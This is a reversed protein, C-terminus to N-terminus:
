APANEALPVEITMSTGEGPTSRIDYAGGLMQVREAIGRLGIGIRGEPVAEAGSFGTGDDQIRLRLKHDDSRLSVVAATARSHRAVNSLWEQVIRFLHIEAEKPLARDVPGLEASFLIPSSASMRRILADLSGILGLHDLEVPRLNYAIRRVEDVATAATASIEALQERATGPAEDDMGLLARNRIILLSQGLSDHLEGAVRKREEEQQTLLRHSYEAQAAQEREFVRVRIRYVIWLSALAASAALTMFWWTRWFPPLVRVTASAPRENWRGDANSASVLFRYRGPPLRTYAAVREGVIENWRDDFGELKYRYRIRAPSATTPAAFRFEIRRSDPAVRMERPPTKAEGDVVIRTLHVPPPPASAGLLRTDISVVGQQTPFWLLGDATRAAAPQVGGNCEASLLGDDRTLALSSVAAIRGDAVANLESVSARHVGRNSSMWFFGSDEIIAFVGNDFLGERTTIAAVRGDRLRNLGGDYTGIWITGDAGAHVARVANSSLGSKEDALVTFRGDRFRVLGGRTGLLLSGEDEEAIAQIFNLEPSGTGYATFRDEGSWLALGGNTGLWMRGNRARHIVRVISSPLGQASGFRRIDNGLIRSVGGRHESVWLSGDEGSALSLIWGTSPVSRAFTKGDLRYVGGGWSGVFLGGARPLIPYAIPPSLGAEAGYTRAAKRRLASLGGGPSTAWITGERDEYIRSIDLSCLGDAPTIWEVHSEDVRALGRRAHAIWFAGDSTQTLAGIAGREARVIELLAPSEIEALGDDDRYRFVGRDPVVIWLSQGDFTVAHGSEIALLDEFPLLLPAKRPRLVTVGSADVAASGTRFLLERTPASRGVRVFRSGQLEYLGNPTFVWPQSSGEAAIALVPTLSGDVSHTVFAGNRYLSVFGDETGAWLAGDAAEFLTTFRSSRLGPTTVKAFVTFDVGDYRVLGGLTTFWLYGDRTQRIGYIVGQPLADDTTWTKVRWASDAHAAPCIATALFAALGALVRSRFSVSHSAM